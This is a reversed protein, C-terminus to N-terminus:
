RITKPPSAGACLALCCARPAPGCRFASRRGAASISSRRMVSRFRPPPSSLRPSCCRPRITPSRRKTRSRRPSPKPKPKPAAAAGAAPASGPEAAPASTQPAAPAAGLPPAPQAPAPAAAPPAADPAATQARLPAAGILALTAVSLLASRMCSNRTMAEGNRRLNRAGTSKADSSKSRAAGGTM